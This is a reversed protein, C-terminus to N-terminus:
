HRPFEFCKPLNQYHRYQQNQKLKKMKRQLHSLNKWNRVTLVGSHSKTHEKMEKPMDAFRQGGVYRATHIIKRVEGNIRLFDNFDSVVESRLNKWFANIAEPKLKDVEAKIFTISKAITFSKRCPIWILIQM